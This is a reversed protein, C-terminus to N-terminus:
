KGDEGGRTSQKRDHRHGLASLPHDQGTVRLGPDLLSFLSFTLRGNLAPSQLSSARSVGGLWTAQSRSSEVRGEGDSVKRSGDDSADVMWQKKQQEPM